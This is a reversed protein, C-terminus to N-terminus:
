ENKAENNQLELPISKCIVNHYKKTLIFKYCNFAVLDLDEISEWVFLKSKSAGSSLERCSLFAM